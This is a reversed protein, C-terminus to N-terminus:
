LNGGAGSKEDFREKCVFCHTQKRLKVLDQYPINGDIDNQTELEKNLADCTERLSKIFARLVAKQNSGKFLYTKGFM